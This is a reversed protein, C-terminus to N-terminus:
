QKQEKDGLNEDNAGKRVCYQDWWKWWADIEYDYNDYDEKEVLPLNWPFLDHQILLEFLNELSAEDIKPM